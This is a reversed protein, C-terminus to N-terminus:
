TLIFYRKKLDIYAQRFDYITMKLLNIIRLLTKCCFLLAVSAM